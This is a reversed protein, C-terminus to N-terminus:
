VFTSLLQLAKTKDSVWREFLCAWRRSQAEYGMIGLPWSVHMQDQHYFLVMYNFLTQFLLTV